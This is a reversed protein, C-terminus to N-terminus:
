IKLEETTIFFTRHTNKDIKGGFIRPTGKKPGRVYNQFECGKVKLFGEPCEEPGHAAEYVHWNESLGYKLRCIQSYKEFVM